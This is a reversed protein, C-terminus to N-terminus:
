VTGTLKIMTAFPRHTAATIASAISGTPHLLRGESDSCIGAAGVNLLCM